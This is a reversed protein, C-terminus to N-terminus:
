CRRIENNCTIAINKCGKAYEVNEGYCVKTRDLANKFDELAGEYNGKKFEITARTNLAAPYHPSSGNNQKELTSIAKNVAVKAADYDGSMYNATAINNFTIGAKDQLSENEEVLSIAREFFGLANEPEKKDLYVLGINNFLGALVAPDRHDLQELVYMANKFCDLAADTAGMLRLTGAKNLM